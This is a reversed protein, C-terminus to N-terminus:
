GGAPRGLNGSVSVLGPTSLAEIRCNDVRVSLAELRKQWALWDSFSVAGFTFQLQNAGAPELRTLARALGAAETQAQVQARLDGGPARPAPLARLRGYETAQQELTAAQARLAAVGARLQTGAQHASAVFVAYLAVALVCGLLALARRERPSRSAIFAPAKVAIV